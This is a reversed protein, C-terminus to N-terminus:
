VSASGFNGDARRQAKFRPGLPPSLAGTASDFRFVMLDNTIDQQLPFNLGQDGVIVFKGDESFTILGPQNGAPFPSGPVQTFMGQSFRFVLINGFTSTSTTVLVFTGSPDIAIQMPFAGTATCSTAAPLPGGLFGGGILGIDPDLPYSCLQGTSSSFSLLFKGDPTLVFSDTHPGVSVEPPNSGVTRSLAGTRPDVGAVVVFNDPSDDHEAAYLFRDNPHFKLPGGLFSRGLDFPSGPIETLQGGAGISFASIGNLTIGYLFHGAPDVAMPGVGSGGMSAVHTLAVQTLAGTAPNQTYTVIPFSTPFPPGTLPFTTGVFTFQGNRIIAQPGPPVSFPSGPIDSLSGSSDLQFGAVGATTNLTVYIFNPNFTPSTTTSTAVSSMGSCGIMFLLLISSLFFLQFLFALRASKM